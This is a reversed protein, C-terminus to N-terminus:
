EYQHKGSEMECRTVKHITPLINSQAVVQNKYWIRVHCRGISIILPIFLAKPFSSVMGAENFVIEDTDIEFVPDM